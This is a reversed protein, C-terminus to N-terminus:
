CPLKERLFRGIRSIGDASEPLFPMALWVHPVKRWIDVRVESQYMHAKRALRLSDDLLMESDSVLVYIPPLDEFSGYIPSILPDGSDKDGVYMARPNVGRKSPHPLASDTRSNKIRSPAHDGADLLPSMLVACGPLPRKSDRIIQLLALALGGGASDGAIAIDEAKNGQALLLDYAELADELGAPFPYEPALRYFCVLASAEAELCLRAVLASHVHPTRLIYAGGPLYLIVRHTVKTPDEPAIWKLSCNGSPCDVETTEIKGPSSLRGLTSDALGVVARIARLSSVLRLAPKLSLSLSTNVLDTQWSQM